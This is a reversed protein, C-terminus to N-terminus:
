LVLEQIIGFNRFSAVNAEVGLVRVDDFSWAELRERFKEM